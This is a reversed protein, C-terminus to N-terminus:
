GDRSPWLGTMAASIEWLRKAVEEDYSAPDSPVAKNDVFYKGTVGEVEPSTALHISTQAGEEPRRAILKLLPSVLKILRSNNQGINTAVFGPHLANVTVGTGELRRALEYTFLIMALKSQGYARMGRYKREGELDEFDIRAGRHSTSAVNVVRAPASARLTELLLHTLLFASLHNVTLSMEIGDASLQRRFFIAGANNILVDLRAYREKFERALRRVQAQVSLDALLWQVNPNSTERQIHAVTRAAKEADRGIAIVTAGQQALAQATVQGIGATAGTVLCIRDKM